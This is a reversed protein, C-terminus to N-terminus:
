RRQLANIGIHSGDSNTHTLGTPTSTAMNNGRLLASCPSPFPTCASAYSSLPSCFRHQQATHHHNSQHFTLLFCASLTIPTLHSALSEIQHPALVFDQAPQPSVSPSVSPEFRFLKQPSGYCATYVSVPTALASMDSLTSLNYVTCSVIAHDRCNGCTV